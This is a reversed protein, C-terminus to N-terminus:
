LHNEMQELAISVSSLNSAIQLSNHHNPGYHKRFLRSAKKYYSKSLILHNYISLSDAAKRHFTALHANAHSANKSDM